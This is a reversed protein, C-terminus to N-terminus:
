RSPSPSSASWCRSARPWSSARSSTAASTTPAWPNVSRRRRATAPPRCSTTSRTPRIRRARSRRVPRGGGRVAGRRPLRQHHGLGIVAIKNRKLRRWTDAWLGLPKAALQATDAEVLAEVRDPASVGDTSRARGSSTAVRTIRATAQRRADRRLGRLPHAPRRDRLVIDAILSAFVFVLTVFMVGGAVVPLDRAGIARYIMLGLGSRSFVTETLIAGGMLAGLDIAAITIVPILANKLAHRLVVSRESLGKARATRIYDSRIVELMSARQMYSIYAVEILGLTVAPLILAQLNELDAPIVWLITEGGSGTIPLLDLKLGFVWQM